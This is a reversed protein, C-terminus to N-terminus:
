VTVYWQYAEATSQAVGDGAEYILGLNFQAAADGSMALTQAREFETSMAPLPLFLLLLFSFSLTQVM